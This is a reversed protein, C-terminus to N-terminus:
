TRKETIVGGEVSSDALRIFGGARSGATASGVIVGEAAAVMTVEVTSVGAVPLYSCGVPSHTIEDFWGVGRWLGRQM